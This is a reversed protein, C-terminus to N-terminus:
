LEMHIKIFYWTFAHARITNRTCWRRARTPHYTKSVLVTYSEIHSVNVGMSASLKVRSMCNVDWKVVEIPPEFLTFNSVDIGYTTSTIHCYCFLNYQPPSIVICKVAVFARNLARSKSNNVAPIAFATSHRKEKESSQVPSWFISTKVFPTSVRSTM